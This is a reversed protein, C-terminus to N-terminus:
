QATETSAVPLGLAKLQNELYTRKGLKIVYVRKTEPPEGPNNSVMDTRVEVNLLLVYGTRAFTEGTEEDILEFRSINDEISLTEEIEPLTHGDLEEVNSEFWLVEREAGLAFQHESEECWHFHFSFDNNFKVKSTAM